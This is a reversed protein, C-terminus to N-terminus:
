WVKWPPTEQEWLTRLLRLDRLTDMCQWFGEHRFAALASKSALKELPSSEFVCSVSDELYDFIQPELVFFGGNIWSEDGDPKEQFNNVMKKNTIDLDFVKIKKSSYKFQNKDVSKLM